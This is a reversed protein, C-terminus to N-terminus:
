IVHDGKSHFYEEPLMAPPDEYDGWKTEANIEECRAEFISLEAQARPDKDKKYGKYVAYAIPVERHELSIGPTASEAVLGDPIGPFKFCIRNTGAQAATPIPMFEITTGDLLYYEPVGTSPKNLTAASLFDSQNVGMRTQMGRRSTKQLPAQFASLQGSQLYLVQLSQANLWQAPASYRAVNASLFLFKVVKVVKTKRAMQIIGQNLWDSIETDTFYDDPRTAELESAVMDMMKGFNLEYVSM